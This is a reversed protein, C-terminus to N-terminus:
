KKGEDAQLAHSIWQAAYLGHSRDLMLWVSDRGRRMVVTGVDILRTRSTQGVQRPIASADLLRPLIDEIGLGQLELTLCGPSQDLACALPTQGPWLLTLVSQALAHQSTLLLYEAPGNWVLSPDDGLFQGAAPLATLKHAALAATVAVEGGALCRLALVNLGEVVRVALAPSAGPLAARLATHVAGSPVLPEHM